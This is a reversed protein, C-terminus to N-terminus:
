LTPEQNFGAPVDEDSETIIINEVKAASPGSWCKAVLADVSAPEGCVLAEVTGDQRNRVWGSLGLELANERTWARYWVGQVHGSIRLNITKM